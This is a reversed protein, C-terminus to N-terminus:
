AQQCLIKLLDSMVQFVDVGECHPNFRHWRCGLLNTIAATRAEEKDTDYYKHGHEDCEVVLNHVPFFLDVNYRAGDTDVTKWRQPHFVALAKCIKEMFTDEIWERTRMPTLNFSRELQQRKNTDMRTHVLLETLIAHAVEVTAVPSAKGAGKFKFSTVSKQNFKGKIADWKGAANIPRTFAQILDIVSVEASPTSRVVHDDYVGQCIVENLPRLVEPIPAKDVIKDTKTGRKLAGPRKCPNLLHSSLGFAAVLQRKRDVGGQIHPILASLIAEGGEANTLWRGKYEHDDLDPVHAYVHLEKHDSWWKSAKGKKNVAAILDFLLLENGDQTVGVTKGDYVGTRLITEM